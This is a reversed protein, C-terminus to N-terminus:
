KYGALKLVKNAYAEAQPNSKNLTGAIGGNYARVGLEIDGTIKIRSTLYDIAWPISFDPNQAQEISIHKHVELYIQFIGHSGVGLNRDGHAITSCKSETYALADVIKPDIRNSSIKVIKDWYEPCHPIYTDKKVEIIPTLPTEKTKESIAEPMDCWNKKELKVSYSITNQKPKNIKLEISQPISAELKTQITNEILILGNYGLVTVVIMKIFIATINLANQERWERSTKYKRYKKRAKVKKVKRQVKNKKNRCEGILESIYITKKKTNM